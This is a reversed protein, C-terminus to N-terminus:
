SADLVPFNVNSAEGFFSVVISYAGRTGGEMFGRMMWARVTVSLAPRLKDWGQQRLRAPAEKIVGESKVNVWAGSQQAELCVIRVDNFTSHLSIYLVICVWRPRQVETDM